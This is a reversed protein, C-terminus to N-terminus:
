ELKTRDIKFGKTNITLLNQKQLLVDYFTKADVKELSPKLKSVLVNFKKASINNKECILELRRLAYIYALTQDDSISLVFGCGKLVSIYYYERRYIIINEPFFKHETTYLVSYIQGNTARIAKAKRKPM